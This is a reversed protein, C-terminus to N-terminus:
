AISRRAAAIKEDLDDCVAVMLNISAHVAARPTGGEGWYSGPDLHANFDHSGFSSVRLQGCIAEHHWGGNYWIRPEWRKGLRKCLALASLMNEKARELADDSDDESCRVLAVADTRALVARCAKCKPEGGNHSWSSHGNSHQRENADSNPQIRKGCATVTRGNAAYHKFVFPKM